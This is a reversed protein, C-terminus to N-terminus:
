NKNLATTTLRDATQLDQTIVSIEIVSVRESVRIKDLYKLITM